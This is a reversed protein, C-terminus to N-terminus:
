KLLHETHKDQALSVVAYCVKVAPPISMVSLWTEAIMDWCSYLWQMLLFRQPNSSQSKKCVPPAHLRCASPWRVSAGNQLAYPKGIVRISAIRKFRLTVLVVSSMFMVCEPLLCAWNVWNSLRLLRRWRTLLFCQWRHLLNVGIVYCTKDSM